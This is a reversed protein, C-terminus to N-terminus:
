NRRSMLVSKSKVCDSSKSERGSACIQEPAVRSSKPGIGRCVVSLANAASEFKASPVRFYMDAEDAEERHNLERDSEGVPRRLANHKINSLCRNVRRKM